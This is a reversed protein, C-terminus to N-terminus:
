IGRLAVNTKLANNLSLPKKEKGLFMMM